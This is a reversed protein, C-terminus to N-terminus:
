GRPPENSALPRVRRGGWAIQATVALAAGVLAVILAVPELEGLVPDKVGVVLGAVDGCVLAAATGLAVHRTHRGRSPSGILAAIDSTIAGLILWAIINM